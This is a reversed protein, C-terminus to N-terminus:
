PPSTRTFPLSEDLAALRFMDAVNGKGRTIRLRCGNAASRQSARYVAELGDADIFKLEEIDLLIRRAHTEEAQALAGELISCASFDLEGELSIVYSDGRRAGDLKLQSM